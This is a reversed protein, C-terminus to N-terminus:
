DNEVPDTTNEDKKRGHDCWKDMMKKKFAERDEPNMAAIKQEYRQKWYSKYDNGCHQHHGKRGGRGFGFLIKTLLLLGLAQWYTIVPGAFLAPVLWNWLLQTVLGFLVIFLTGLVIWKLIWVGRKM